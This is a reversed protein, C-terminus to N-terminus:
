LSVPQACPDRALRHSGGPAATDSRRHRESQGDRLRGLGTRWIGQLLVADPRQRALLGLFGRSGLQSLHAQRRSFLCIDAHMGPAIMGRGTMGLARAADVTMGDVQQNADAGGDDQDLMALWRPACQGVYSPGLGCELAVHARRARAGRPHGPLGYPCVLLAGSTEVLDLDRRGLAASVFLCATADLLGLFSLLEIESCYFRERFDRAKEYTDGLAVGLDAGLRAAITAADVLEQASVVKSADILPRLMVGSLSGRHAIRLLVENDPAGGMATDRRGRDNLRVHVTMPMGRLASMVLLCDSVNECITGLGTVGYGALSAGPLCAMRPDVWPHIVGPTCVYGAASVGDQLRSTRAPKIDGIYAGEIEIDARTFQHSKSDFYEADRIVWAVAHPAGQTNIQM